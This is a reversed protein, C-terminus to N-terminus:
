GGARNRRFLGLVARKLTLPANFFGDFIWHEILAGKEGFVPIIHVMKTAWNGGMFRALDPYKAVMQIPFGLYGIYHWFSVLAAVWYNRFDRKSVMLGFVYLGRVSSGPSIPLGQFIVFVGTGIVMGEAWTNGYVMMTYVAVVAAVVQTIPLTCAHVAVSKLYTQIYPEKIKELIDDAEPDTLMGEDRGEEVQDRLWDERFEADLYLKIPYTIANWIRDKFTTWSTLITFLGVPLWGLTLGLVFRRLPHDALHLAREPTVREARNWDILTAHQRAIFRRKFYGWSTLSKHVHQAYAASGWIRRPLRGVIPILGVLLFLLSGLASGRLRGAHEEDVLGKSLWSTIFGQRVSERLESGLLKFHHHTIDPLSGRYAKERLELEAVAPRLDAFHEENRMLYEDLVDLNGRDFQVLQGRFLGKFILWCDAPSMPMGFLLALGARFDIACLGEGPGDGADLRKLANPQSKCTWWEYQRALEPAGMEHFHDVLRKMFVKKHLYEASGVDGVLPGPGVKSFARKMLHDDIEMRWTRGVVWESIEGFSHLQEDFFTAHVDVIAREDGLSLAAGRRILKQWLAGARIADPNVQASFAGQYAMGYLLDRFMRSFNSPPILIKVAYTEGVVLGAIPEDGEMSRLKVQYVQGAFGGGIRKLIEFEIDAEVAPLVGTAHLRLVQGPDHCSPEYPQLLEADAIRQELQLQAQQETLEQM